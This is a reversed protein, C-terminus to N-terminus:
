DPLYNDSLSTAIIGKEILVDSESALCASDAGPKPAPRAPNLSKGSIKIQQPPVSVVSGLGPVERQILRLSDDSGAALLQQRMGDVSSVEIASFGASILIELCRALKLPRIKDELHKALEHDDCKINKPRLFDPLDFIHAMDAAVFFWGDKAQYMRNLAHPGMAEQGNPTQNSVPAPSNSDDDQTTLNFPIQVLNAAQALSTDVRAGQEQPRELRCYSAVLLGFVSSYGTLADICSAIAHLEPEAKNGYRTMIGSAAQLVPDYGPRGQWPGPLPGNYANIVGIILAPKIRHLDDDLLGLRAAAAPRYNHILMDASKVLEHLVQQGEITKLDVLLSRKGQNVDIGYWSTMRPGHHPATADIKIVEAGYEALSRGAVPGAVMSCLDLVRYGQLPLTQPDGTPRPFEPTSVPQDILSFISARDKEPLNRPAPQHRTSRQSRITVQVGPQRMKGFEPDEMEVVIAAATLEPLAMWDATTRQRSCPVGLENLAVEWVISTKTALVQVLLESIRKQWPKSLNSTDSLNNELGRAFADRSVLGENQLQELLGLHEFLKLTIPGHDIAFLYLLEGDACVYSNMLAPYAKRGIQAINRQREISSKSILKRVVPLVYNRLFRPINPIDYRRPQKKIRLHISTMASLAAGALSAEYYGGIGRKHRTMLGLMVASAGHMAAYVSALPLATYVPNLGLLPRLAHIDTYQGTAAAVIGEWAKLGRRSVDSDSFGPLSVIVLRQNLESLRKKDFGLRSLVGPRFNEILVDSRAILESLVAVDHTTKLDLGIRKKGRNLMADVASYCRSGYPSDIKIVEAGQDALLMGALPGALYHGLDLVRIGALPPKDEFDISRPAM